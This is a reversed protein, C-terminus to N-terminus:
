SGIRLNASKRVSLTDRILFCICIEWTFHCSPSGSGPVEVQSWSSSRLFLSPSRASTGKGSFQKTPNGSGRVDPVYTWPVPCWHDGNLCARPPGVTVSWLFPLELLFVHGGEPSLQGTKVLWQNTHCQVGWMELGEGCCCSQRNVEWAISELRGETDSAELFVLPQFM